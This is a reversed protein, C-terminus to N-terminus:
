GDDSSICLSYMGGAAVKLQGYIAWVYNSDPTDLVYQRFARLDHMDVVPLKGKGEFYLRSIGNNADGLKPIRGLGVESRFMCMTFSSPDNQSAPNCQAFYRSNTGVIGSKMLVKDDGTDPGSYQAMMGEGGGAQFGDSYVIHSGASLEKSGCKESMGHLGENDVLLPGDM